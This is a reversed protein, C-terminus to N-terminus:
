DLNNLFDLFEGYFKPDLKGANPANDCATLKTKIAERHTEVKPGLAERVDQLSVTTSGEQESAPATQTPTEEAPVKFTEKVAKKTKPEEVVTEVKAPNETNQTVVGGGSVLILNALAEAVKGNAPDIELELNIKM